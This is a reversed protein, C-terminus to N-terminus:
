ELVRASDELLQRLRAREREFLTKGSDTLAYAKRMGGEEVLTIYGDGEFRSLLTYLTGAGIQVRGGTLATVFQMIAYGHRPEHLALLLYYMQETLTELQKRAM